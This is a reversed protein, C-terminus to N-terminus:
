NKIFNYIKELNEVGFCSIIDNINQLYMYGFKKGHVGLTRKGTRDVYIYDVDVTEYKNVIRNMNNVGAGNCRITDKSFIDKISIIYAGTGSHWSKENYAYEEVADCFDYFDINSKAETIYEKLTKM